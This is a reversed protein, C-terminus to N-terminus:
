SDFIKEMASNWDDARAAMSHKQKVIEYNREIDEKRIKPDLLENLHHLWEEENRAVRGVGDNQLREYEPSYSAIFPIGAATYELGKITSKAHNFPIDNLPVLGIDIKRFMQPYQSLIKRPEHTFKTEPQLGLLDGATYPLEKIHGSHHFELRNNKMFEGFFPQLTELDGSRWPIAGVWGVTPMFRSHDQKKHYRDIDIGNRILFVNKKGKEKTYFDYLFQTSTIIADASDIIKWYHERNSDPHKEPDTNQWALNTQSLGEYFDDVDVVIKQNPRKPGDLIEAVTRLMILKFVVIDWGYFVNEKDIFAGFGHDPHYEPMAMSVNWDMKELELSPLYCRYYACGNPEVPKIGRTWDLTLFAVNKSM